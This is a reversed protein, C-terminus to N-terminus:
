MKEPANIGILELNNKLLKAVSYVLLLRKNRTWTDEVLIKSDNYFKHFDSALDQLYFVLQHPEVNKLVTRTVESFGLVRHALENELSNLNVSESGLCAADNLNSFFELLELESVCSQRIVSSARAHAYQVYFVPNEESNKQALSVDFNFETEPKKSLLFFRVADKGRSLITATEHKNECYEVEGNVEDFGSSFYILDKLTVYDGSRKSFKVDKGNKKVTVMKHLITMPFNKDIKKNLGQLGAKVRQVTGHHDTGQINIAKGFGRRWKDLHYAIDPVFYTYSGDSKIMVRDKDDGFDTSRLWLANDVFFTMGNKKLSTIVDDVLGNQYFDSELAFNDFSIGLLELDSNQEDRLCGISFNKIENLLKKSKEFKTLKTAKKLIRFKNAIEIIYSGRYGDKPFEESNQDYGNLRAWVSLALNEIQNGADNYYFERYTDHGAKSLINSIADGLVAQRAHGVHLPGTPNASVYELIIKEINKSKEWGYDQETLVTCLRSLKAFPNIRFNLFGPRAVEANHWLSEHKSQKVLNSNFSNAILNALKLADLNSEKSKRLAINSSLDGNARNKPIEISTEIDRADIVSNFLEGQEELINISELIIPILDAKLAHIM